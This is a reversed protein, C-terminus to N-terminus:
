EIAVNTHMDCYVTLHSSYTGTIFHVDFLHGAAPTTAVGVMDNPIDNLITKIHERMDVTVEGHKSFDFTMGLYDHVKGRSITLPTEKGFEDNMQKIIQDVVETEDHALMVDDVHWGITCQKANIVKNVVCESYPNLVFGWVQLKRSLKEWFLRAARLTGYLAKLLEVYLIKVGGEYTVYPSYM